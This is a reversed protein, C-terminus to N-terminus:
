VILPYVYGSKKPSLRAAYSDLAARSREKHHGNVTSVRAYLAVRVQKM